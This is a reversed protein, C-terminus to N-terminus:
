ENELIFFEEELTSDVKGLISKHELSTDLNYIASSHTNVYLVLVRLMNYHIVNYMKSAWVDSSAGYLNQQAYTDLARLARYIYENCIFSSDSTTKSDLLGQYKRSLRNYEKKTYGGLSRIIFNKILGM